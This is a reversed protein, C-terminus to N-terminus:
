EEAAWFGYGAKSYNRGLFVLDRIGVWGSQDLDSRFAYWWTGYDTRMISLDNVDVVNDQSIDGTLLLMNFEPNYFGDFYVEQSGILYGPRTAVINLDGEAPNIFMFKGYSDTTTQIGTGEITVVTGSFDYYYPWQWLPQAEPIVCGTLISGQVCVCDGWYNNVPIDYLPSGEHGENGVLEWTQFNICTGEKTPMKTRFTIWALAADGFFGDYGYQDYLRSGHFSATGNSNDIGSDGVSFVFDTNVQVSVAELYNPDFYVTVDGGYLNEVAQINVAATFEGGFPICEDPADIFLGCLSQGVCISGEVFAQNLAQDYATVQVPNSGQELWLDVRWYAWYQDFNWYEVSQQNVLVNECGREVQGTLTFYGLEPLCGEPWNVILAPPTTDQEQFTVNFWQQAIAGTGTDTLTLLVPETGAGDLPTVHMVDTDPNISVDMFSTNYDSASWVLTDFGAGFMYLIIKPLILYNCPNGMSGANAWELTNQSALVHGNGLKFDILTPQTKEYDNALLIDTGAPLSAPDFYGHSVYNWYSFMSDDQGQLAPHAPDLIYNQQSYVPHTHTIGGPGYTWHGGAWGEDCANFQFSGGANIWETIRSMNSDLNNYFDQPQDSPVLLHTYQFLDTSALQSSSIVDYGLGLNNLCQENQYGTGWSDADEVILISPAIGGSGGNEHPHLNYDIGSGVIGTLDPVVPDIYPGENAAGVPSAQHAPPEAAQVSLDTPRVDSSAQGALAASGFILLCCALAMLILITKKKFSM